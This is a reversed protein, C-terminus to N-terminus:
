DAVCRGAAPSFRTCLVTNAAVGRFFGAGGAVFFRLTVTLNTASGDTCASIASAALQRRPPAGVHIYVGVLLSALRPAIHVALGCPSFARLACPDVCWAICRSDGWVWAHVETNWGVCWVGGLHVTLVWALQSAEDGGFINHQRSFKSSHHPPLCLAAGRWPVACWCVM